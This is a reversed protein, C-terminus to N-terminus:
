SGSRSIGAAKLTTPPVGVSRWAQYTIGKRASYERAYDVFARELAGLDAGTDMTELEAELDM